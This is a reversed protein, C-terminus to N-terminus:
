TLFMLRVEELEFMWSGESTMEWQLLHELLPNERGDSDCGCKSEHEVKLDEPAPAITHGSTGKM